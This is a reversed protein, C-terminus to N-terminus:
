ASSDDDMRGVILWARGVLQKKLSTLTFTWGCILAIVPTVSSAFAYVALTLPSVSSPLCPRILRFSFPLFLFSSFTILSMLSPFHLFFNSICLKEKDPFGSIRDFDTYKQLRFFFLFYILLSFVRTRHCSIFSTSCCCCQQPLYYIYNMDAECEYAVCVCM